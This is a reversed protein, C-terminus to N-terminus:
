YTIDLFKILDWESKDSYREEITVEETILPNNNLEKVSQRIAETPQGLILQKLSSGEKILTIYM